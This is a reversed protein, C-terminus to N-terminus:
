KEKWLNNIYNRDDVFFPIETDIIWESRAAEVFAPFTCKFFPDAEPVVEKKYVVFGWKQLNSLENWDIGKDLCMKKMEDGNKGHLEKQSHLSRALAQISNRRADMQRWIFVNEIEDNPVTFVRADFVAPYDESHISYNFNGTFISSIVSVIKQIKGGLYVQSEPRQWGNLLFTVEDSQGYAMIIQGIDECTKRTAQQFVISLDQDFPKNFRVNEFIDDRFVGDKYKSTKRFNKTYTHFAKGDVRVFVPMNQNVFGLEPSYFEKEYLKMRESLSESM